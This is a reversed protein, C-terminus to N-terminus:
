VSPLSDPRSPKYKIQYKPDHIDYCTNMNKIGTVSKIKLTVDTTIKLIHEIDSATLEENGQNISRQVLFGIEKTLEIMALYGSDIKEICDM